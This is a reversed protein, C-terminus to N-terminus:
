AMCTTVCNKKGNGVVKSLRKTIEDGGARRGAVAPVRGDTYSKCEHDPLSKVGRGSM